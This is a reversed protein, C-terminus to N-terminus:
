SPHMMAPCVIPINNQQGSITKVLIKMGKTGESLHLGPSQVLIEDFTMCFLVGHIKGDTPDFPTLPYMEIMAMRQTESEPRMLELFM